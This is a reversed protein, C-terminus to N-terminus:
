EGGLAETVDKASGTMWYGGGGVTHIRVHGRYDTEYGQKGDVYSAILDVRVARDESVLFGNVVKM